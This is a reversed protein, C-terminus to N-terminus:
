LSTTSQKEKDDCRFIQKKKKWIGNGINAPPASRGSLWIYNNKVNTTTTGIDLGVGATQHQGITLNVDHKKNQFSFKQNNLFVPLISISTEKM